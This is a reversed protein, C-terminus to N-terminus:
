ASARGLVRAIARPSFRQPPPAAITGSQSRGLGGGFPNAVRDVLARWFRRAQVRRRHAQILLRAYSDLGASSIEVSPLRDILDSNYPNFTKEIAAFGLQEAISRIAAVSPRQQLEAFAILARFVSEHERTPMADLLLEHPDDCALDVGAHITHFRASLFRDAVDCLSEASTEGLVQLAAGPDYSQSTKCCEGPKADLARVPSNQKPIM